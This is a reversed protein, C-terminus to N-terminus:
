KIFVTRRTILNDSSQLTYFYYGSAVKEGSSNTADWYKFHIGEESIEDVLKKVVDGKINFITLNIRCSEPIYYMIECNSNFPNPYNQAMYLQGNRVATNLDGDRSHPSFNIDMTLSGSSSTIYEIGFDMQIGNYSENSPISNPNFFCNSTCGPFPDGSDGNNEGRELDWLGDAQELAVKLHGSCSHDPYWENDNNPSNEDIHWILLGEGPLETDYGTRQRYEVLFYERPEMLDSQLRYIEASNRIPDILLSKNSNVINITEVCGIQSLCWADPHAPCSGMCGNWAGGSMLSWRGIGNSTYDTDYLDPLGFLHGIEHCFVGITMDGPQEWYEPMISYVSIWVGDKKRAPIRWQHSWIDNNDGTFEAGPGSHVVILGDVYGDGDNDFDAFDVYPDVAAIADEVLGQCNRPYGGLGHFRNTYYSIPKPMTKWGPGSPKIATTIRFKGCSIENFYDRVSVGDQDYVLSDFSVPSVSAAADPFDVLITLLRLDETSDNDAFSKLYVSGRGPNNIGIRRLKNLSRMYFPEVIKGMSINKILKPHPPMAQVSEPTFSLVIISIIAILINSKIEPRGM